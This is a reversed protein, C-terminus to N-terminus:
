VTKSIVMLSIFFHLCPQALYGDTPWLRTVKTVLRNSKFFVLAYKTPQSSNQADDSYENLHLLLIM